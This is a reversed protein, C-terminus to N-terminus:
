FRASFGVFPNIQDAASTLGVNVGADLQLNKTVAYTIGVGFSM